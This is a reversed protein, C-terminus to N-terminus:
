AVSAKRTAARLTMAAYARRADDAKERRHGDSGAPQTHAVMAGSRVEVWKGCYPCLGLVQEIPKAQGKPTWSARKLLYRGPYWPELRVQPAGPCFGPTKPTVPPRKLRTETTDM